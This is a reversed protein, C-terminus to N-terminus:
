NQDIASNRLVLTTRFKKIKSSRTKNEIMDSKSNEKSKPENAFVISMIEERLAFNTIKFPNANVCTNRLNSDFLKKFFSKVLVMRKEKLIRLGEKLLVKPM